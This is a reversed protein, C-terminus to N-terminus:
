RSAKGSRGDVTVAVSKGDATAVKVDFVPNGNKMSPIASYVTGPQTAEAKKVAEALSLKSMQVLTLQMASRTLHKKDEFVEVAPQWAANTAEGNLEILANHEADASLGSKATYVSLLLKGDEIEFKASIAAGNEKEAQTIGEALSHKSQKLRTVLAQDDGEAASLAAGGSLTISASLALIRLLTVPTKLNM